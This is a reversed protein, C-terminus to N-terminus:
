HATLAPAPAPFPTRALADLVALTTGLGGFIGGSMTVSALARAGLEAELRGGFFGDVGACTVFTDAVLGLDLPDAGPDFAFPVAARGPAASPARYPRVHHITVVSGGHAPLTLGLRTINDRAADVAPGPCSEAWSRQAGTVVMATHAPVLGGDYPWPYPVTGAVTM